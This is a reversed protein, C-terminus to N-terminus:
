WLPLFLIFPSLSSLCNLLSQPPAPAQDRHGCLFAVVVWNHLFAASVFTFLPHLALFIPGEQDTFSDKPSSRILLLSCHFLTSFLLAQILLHYLTHTPSPCPMGKHASLWHLLFRSSLALSPVAALLLTQLSQCSQLCQAHVSSARKCIPIAAVGQSIVISHHYEADTM